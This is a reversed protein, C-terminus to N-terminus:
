EDWLILMRSYNIETGSQLHKFVTDGDINANDLSELGNLQADDFFQAATRKKKAM